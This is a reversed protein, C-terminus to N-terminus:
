YTMFLKFNIAIVITLFFVTRLVYM